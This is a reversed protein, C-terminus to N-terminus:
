LTIYKMVKQDILFGKTFITGLFGSKYTKQWHIYPITSELNAIRIGLSKKCIDLVIDNMTKDECKYM